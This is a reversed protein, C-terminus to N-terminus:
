RGPWTISGKRVETLHTAHEHVQVTIQLLIV